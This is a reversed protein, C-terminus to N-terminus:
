SSQICFKEMCSSPNREKRERKEEEKERKKGQIRGGSSPPGKLTARRGLKMGVM